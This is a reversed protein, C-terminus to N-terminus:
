TSLTTLTTLYLSYIPFTGARPAQIWKPKKNISVFCTLYKVTLWLPTTSVAKSPRIGNTLVIQNHKFLYQYYYGKRAQFPQFTWIYGSIPSLQVMFRFHFRVKQVGMCCFIKGLNLVCILGIEHYIQNLVSFMLPCAM